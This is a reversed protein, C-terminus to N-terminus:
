PQIDLDLGTLKFVFAYQTPLQGRDLKPPQIMLTNDDNVILNFFFSSFVSLSSTSTILEQRYFELLDKVFFKQLNFVEDKQQAFVESLFSSIMSDM